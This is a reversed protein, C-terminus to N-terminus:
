RARISTYSLQPGGGNSGSLRGAVVVRRGIYVAVEDYRGSDSTITLTTTPTTDSADEAEDKSDVCYAVSSKLRYYTLARGDGKDHAHMAIITGVIQVQSPDPLCVAGASTPLSFTLIAAIYRM